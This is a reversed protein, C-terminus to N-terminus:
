DPAGSAAVGDPSTGDPTVPAGVPPPQDPAAEAYARARAGVQRGLAHYADFQTVSFWQDATSDSPFGPHSRAYAKVDFPTDDTLLAKAVVLRGPLKKLRGGLDPYTIDGTIVCDESLRDKLDDTSGESESSSAKGSGVTLREPHHLEITVGLEEYALNMAEALATPIPSRGGSADICYVLECRHRLLEVLGLNDYHGGDTVFLLPGDKPFSGFFERRLTQLSRWGPLGPTCWRPSADRGDGVQGRTRLMDIYKPNPLWTGLRANTLTLLRSYVRHQTGMQSAIAAGSIAQAAEVTLDRRLVQPIGNKETLEAPEVWGVQPGGVYDGSMSWAVVKRGPPTVDNNSVHAACSFIVQPFGESPEAYRELWTHDTANYPKACVKGDKCTRRVAFASALRRRYFPHLSWRVQDILAFFGIVVLGAVTYIAEHAGGPWDSESATLKGTTGLAIAFALIVGVVLILLSIWVVATATFSRDYPRAKTWLKRVVGVSTHVVPRHSLAVLAGIYGILVSLSGIALRGSVVRNGVAALIPLGIGAIAILGAAATAIIAARKTIDPPTRRHSWWWGAAGDVPRFQDVLVTLCWLLLALGALFGVGALVGDTPPWLSGFSSPNWLQEPMYEYGHALLRGLTLAGVALCILTVLFGRLVVGIAVIWQWAGEALYNAHNRTYNLESSGSRYVDAPEAISDASTNSTQPHDLALRMAGTAFGGGSVSVLYSSRILEARLSDLAGLAFTASRVGGGSVCFGVSGVGGHERRDPLLTNARWAAYLTAQSDDCSPRETTAPFEVPPLSSDGRTVARHLVVVLAVLSVVATPVAVAATLVACAQAVVCWFGGIESSKVIFLLAVSCTVASLGVLLAGWTAARCLQRGYMTLTIAQGLRAVFWLALVYGIILVFSFYVENAFDQRPNGGIVDNVDQASGAFALEITRRAEDFRTYLFTLLVVIIPAGLAITLAVSRRRLWYDLRNPPGDETPAADTSASQSETM